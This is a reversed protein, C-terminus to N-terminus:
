EIERGFRTPNVNKGKDLPICECGFARFDKEIRRTMWDTLWDWNKRRFLAPRGFRLRHWFGTEADTRVQKWDM